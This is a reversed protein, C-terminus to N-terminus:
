AGSSFGSSCHLARTLRAMAFARGPETSSRCRSARRSNPRRLRCGSIITRKKWWAPRETVPMGHLDNPSGKPLRTQRLARSTPQRSLVAPATRILHQWRIATSTVCPFVPCESPEERLLSLSSSCGAAQRRMSGGSGPRRSLRSATWAALLDPSGHRDLRFAIPIAAEPVPSVKATSRCRRSSRVKSRGLQLATGSECRVKRATRVAHPITHAQPHRLGEHDQPKPM